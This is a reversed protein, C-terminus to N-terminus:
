TKNKGQENSQSNVFDPYLKAMCDPCIGHTFQADSHKMLYAELINWYGKDDRIKKCSSCIPILGGLTKIDALATQLDTILKEREAEFQKRETIDEKVALFNTTIGLEDTIPSIVAFEWYLEGNKKKNHFEGRWTKGSTITDWLQKYEESSKEDSKLIRSNKGIAEELSYGTIQVFKPNVYQIAGKTDTIVISAPSQEVARTLKRLENEAQKRETIDIFSTIIKRANQMYSVSMLGYRIEGGKKYFKFEYKDPADQPNSLRRRNYEKFRKLDEQPIQQTWSMGIVEEKTYGSMNCYEGNVLSITTDPEIICIAASNNEFLSRFYHESKKLEDELRRRDTIDVVQSLVSVMEGNEDKLIINYWECTIISRDKRYNRNCSFIQNFLGNKLKEGTKQVISIDPEYIINLDVLQKGVVEEANWGFIKESEGTWRTVRFDSDWEVIAMPSNDMYFRLREESELKAKEALKRESIDHSVLAIGVVKSNTDFVPSYDVHLWRKGYSMEFINEYSISKGSKVENIYKLAFQYNKEGVVDRIHSGIIKERSIGFSKEYLDNVFEYRLTDINVYAIYAPIYNALVLFKADSEELSHKTAKQTTKKTTILGSKLSSVELELEIIRNKLEDNNM